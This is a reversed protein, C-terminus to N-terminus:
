GASLQKVAPNYQYARHFWDTLAQQQSKDFQLGIQSRRWIIDDASDAWENHVLFDCEIEYLQHGFHQGLEELEQKDGLLKFSRSGYCSALRQLLALPLREYKEKLRKLLTEITNNSIGTKSIRNGKVDEGLLAGGPLFTDATWSKKLHPFYPSLLELTQEALIRHTLLSGGIVSVIPNKGNSCSFDLVYDQATGSPGTPDKYIARINAYSSVVDEMTLPIDLLSNVIQLLRQIEDENVGSEGRPGDYSEVLPGILCYDDGVPSLTMVQRKNQQLKYGVQGKYFKKVIVYNHKLLETHCRTNSHLTESITKEVQAGTANVITTAEVKQQEKTVVDELVIRWIGDVSEASGCRTRPLIKAGNDAASLANSIVLRSDDIECEPYVLWNGSHPNLCSLPDDPITCNSIHPRLHKNGLMDYLTLGTRLVWRPRSQENCPVIFPVVHILHPARKLLINREKLTKHLTNLKLRELHRIGGHFAKGCRSFAAQGLDNTECLGVTLGRGAADAAIATGNIGGGIVFLDFQKPRDM